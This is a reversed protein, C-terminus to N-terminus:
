YWWGKKTPRPVLNTSYSSMVVLLKSQGSAPLPAAEAMPGLLSVGRLNRWLNKESREEWPLCSLCFVRWRKTLQGVTNKKVDRSVLASVIYINQIVNGFGLCENSHSSQTLLMCSGADSNCIVIEYCSVIPRWKFTWASGIYHWQLRWFQMHLNWPMFVFKCEKSHKSRAIIICSGADSNCGLKGALFNLSM